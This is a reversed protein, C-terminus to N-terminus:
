MTGAMLVTQKHKKRGYYVFCIKFFFFGTFIFLVYLVVCQIFYQFFLLSFCIYM